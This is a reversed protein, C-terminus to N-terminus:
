SRPGVIGHLCARKSMDQRRQSNQSKVATSLQTKTANMSSSKKRPYQWRRRASSQPSPGAIRPVRM